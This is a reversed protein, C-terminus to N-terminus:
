GGQEDHVGTLVILPVRAAKSRLQKFAEWGDADPLSLDLLILDVPKAGVLRVAEDLTVARQILFSTDEAKGLYTRALAFDRDDDEVILLRLPERNMRGGLTSVAVSEKTPPMKWLHPRKTLPM